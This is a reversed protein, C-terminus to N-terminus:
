DAAVSVGSNKVSRPSVAAIVAQSIFYGAPRLKQLLPRAEAIVGDQKAMGIVAATGETRLGQVRAEARGARDDIRLLSGPSQLAAAISAREGIDLGSNVPHWLREPFTRCIV